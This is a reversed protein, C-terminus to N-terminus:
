GIAGTEPGLAGTVPEFADPFGAAMTVPLRAVEAGVPLAILEPTGAELLSRMVRLVAAHQAEVGMVSALLRKAATDELRPTHALYTRTVVAELGEALNVLDLPTQLAALAGDIVAKYAPNPAAQETGGLARTRSQFAKRHEEHHLRTVQAFRHVTPNGTRIVDLGLATTYLSVALVELSSATQLIRVDLAQDAQAPAALLSAVLGALSGGFARRLHDDATM